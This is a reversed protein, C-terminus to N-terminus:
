KILVMKRIKIFSQEGVVSSAELKYFYVGASLQGGVNNTGSWTFEHYGQEFVGEAIKAIQLKMQENDEKVLQNKLNLNLRM